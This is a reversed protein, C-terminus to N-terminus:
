FQAITEDDRFVTTPVASEDSNGDKPEITGENPKDISVKLKDTSVKPRDTSVKTEESDKVIGEDHADKTEIYDMADDLDDFALDKHVTPESKAPKREQKTVFEKLKAKKKLQKIQVKLDKIQVAQTTVYTCLSVCLDYISQLTMGDENGSLSRDSSSQGEHSGGSI